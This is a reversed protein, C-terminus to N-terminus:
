WCGDGLLPSSSLGLNNSANPYDRMLGRLWLLRGELDLCVLDNSSFLAFVHSGDSVPTPAAVSIKEHCTTRGTAWFQREWRRKGDSANFCIIHLREQRAGSCSTM